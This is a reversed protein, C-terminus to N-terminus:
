TQCKMKIETFNNFIIFGQNIIKKLFDSTNLKTNEKDEEYLLKRNVINLLINYKKVVSFNTKINMDYLYEKFAERNLVDKYMGLQIVQINKKLPNEEIIYLRIDEVEINNKYNSGDLVQYFMTKMEESTIKKLHHNETQHNIAVNYCELEKYCVHCHLKVMSELYVKEKFNETTNKLEYDKKKSHNSKRGKKKLKSKMVKKLEKNENHILVNKQLKNKLTKPPLAINHVKKCHRSLSSRTTYSKSCKSCTNTHHLIINHINKSHRKLFSPVIYSKGCKSCIFAKVDVNKSKTNKTRKAKKEIETYSKRKKIKKENTQFEKVDANKSQTNKENLKIKSTKICSLGVKNNSVDEKKMQYTKIQTLRNLPNMLKNFKKEQINHFNVLHDQLQDLYDDEKFPKKCFNCEYSENVKKLFEKLIKTCKKKEEIEIKIQQLQILPKLLQNFEKEGFNHFNKLHDQLQGLYDDEKFPEKCFNCEYSENVKKLFKKFIKIYKEKEKIETSSKRKKIKKENKQFESEEIKLNM